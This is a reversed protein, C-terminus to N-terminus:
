QLSEERAAVRAARVFAEIKRPDKVGPQREVGSSVDVGFPRVRAIASAINSANLGGALIVEVEAALDAAAGWDGVRGTGSAPGEFLVRPPLKAPRERNARLVPLRGAHAPLTLDSFDEVDTQLWDPALTAFIEDVLAQDPHQTVAVKLIGPRLEEALRAAGAPTVRRTSPAFVFGVADAGAAAAAHIAESTTMGCIKIFLNM